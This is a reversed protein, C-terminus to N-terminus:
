SEKNADKCLLNLFNNSAENAIRHIDVETFAGEEYRYCENKFAMAINAQWGIRYGKDIKLANVLVEVAEKLKSDM